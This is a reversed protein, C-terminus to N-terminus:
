SKLSHLWHEVQLPALSLTLMPLAWCLLASAYVCTATAVSATGGTAFTNQKTRDVATLYGRPLAITISGGLPYM